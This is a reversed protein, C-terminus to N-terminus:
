SGQNGAPSVPIKGTAVAPPRATITPGITAPTGSVQWGATTNLLIAKAEHPGSLEGAIQPFERQISEDSAWAAPEAVAYHYNVLDTSRSNERASDVSLVQRRGYCFNGSNKAFVDPDLASRGERTLEFTHSDAASGKSGPKRVLLGADALANLGREGIQDPSADVVPFKVSDPWICM